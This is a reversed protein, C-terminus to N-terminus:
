FARRLGVELRQENTDRLRTRSVDRRHHISAFPSLRGALADHQEITAGLEIGTERDASRDAAAREFRTQTTGLELSPTLGSAFETEAFVNGSLAKFGHDARRSERQAAKVRVGVRTREALSQTVTAEGSVLTGELGPASPNYVRWAGASGRVAITNTALHDLGTSFGVRREQPRYRQWSQRFEPGSAVSTRPSTTRLRARASVQHQDHSAAAYKSARGAVRGTVALKAGRVQPQLPKRLRLRGSAQVGWGPAAPEIVTSPPPLPDIQLLDGVPSPAARSPAHHRGRRSSTGSRFPARAQRAARLQEAKLAVASSRGLSAALTASPRLMPANQLRETAAAADQRGEVELAAAATHLFATVVVVVVLWSARACVGCVIRM